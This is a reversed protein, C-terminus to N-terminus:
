KGYVYSRKSNPQTIRWLSRKRKDRGCLEIVARMHLNVIATQITPLPQDKGLEKRIDYATVPNDARMIVACVRNELREMDMM